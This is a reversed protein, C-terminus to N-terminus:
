KEKVDSMIKSNLKNNPVEMIQGCKPCPVYWMAEPTDGGYNAGKSGLKVDGPEAQIKSKCSKCTFIWWPKEELIKAM